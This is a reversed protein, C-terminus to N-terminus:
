GNVEQNALSVWAGRGMSSFVTGTKAMDWAAGSLAVESSSGRSATKLSQV